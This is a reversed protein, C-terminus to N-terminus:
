RVTLSSWDKCLFSKGMEAIWARLPATSELQTLTAFGYCVFAPYLKLFREVCDFCFPFCLSCFALAKHKSKLEVIQSLLM